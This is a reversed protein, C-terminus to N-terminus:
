YASPDIGYEQETRSEQVELARIESNASGYKHCHESHNWPAPDKKVKFAETRAFAM